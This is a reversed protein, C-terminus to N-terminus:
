TTALYITVLVNVVAHPATGVSFSLSEMVVPTTTYMFPVGECHHRSICEVSYDRSYNHGFVFVGKRVSGIITVDLTNIRESIM